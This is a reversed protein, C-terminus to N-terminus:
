KLKTEPPYSNFMLAIESRIFETRKDTSLKEQLQRQSISQWVVSQTASDILEIVLKGYEREYYQVPTSFAISSRKRGFGVGVSSGSQKLETESEVRYNVLLKATEFEEQILGKKELEASVADKIRASDLSEAVDKIPAAFAFSTYQTFNHTSRYDTSPKVACASLSLSLLTILFLRLM